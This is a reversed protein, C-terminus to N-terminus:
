PRTRPPLGDNPRSNMARVRAIASDVEADDGRARDVGSYAPLANPMQISGFGFPICIRSIAIGCAALGFRHTSDGVTWGLAHRKASDEIARLRSVISANAERVRVDAVGSPAAPGVVLRRDGPLPAALLGAAPAVAAPSPVAIAATAIVAGTDRVPALSERPPSPRLRRRSQPDNHALTRPATAQVAPAVFQLREARERLTVSPSREVRTGHRGAVVGLAVVAVGHALLAFLVGDFWRDGQWERSSIRM